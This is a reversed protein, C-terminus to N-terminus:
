SSPQESCSSDLVAVLVQRTISLQSALAKVGGLFLEIATKDGRSSTINALCPEIRANEIGLGLNVRLWSGGRATRNVLRQLLGRLGVTPECGPSEDHV